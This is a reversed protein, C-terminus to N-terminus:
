KPELPPSAPFWHLKDAEQAYPLNPCRRVMAKYFRDAAQPDRGKIYAGGQYLAYLTLPDNDPLAQAAQWMLDAAVYRYHFRKNPVPASRWVRRMEDDTASLVKATAPNMTKFWNRRIVESGYTLPPTENPKYTRYYTPGARSLLGHIYTWDPEIETGMLAMGTDYASKSAAMMHKAWMSDPKALKRATPLEYTFNDWHVAHLEAAAKLETSVGVLITRQDDPAYEAAQAWKGNRALRRSLLSRLAALRNEGEESYRECRKQFEPDDKHGDVFTRLEALTLVREAVYAADTWYEARLFLELAKVYEGRGLSLVGLGAKVDAGVDVFTFEDLQWTEDAPFADLISHITQAAEDVRGQRLLIKSHVWTAYPASADAQEVWRQATEIDGEKYSAWALRDAEPFPGKIGSQILATNWDKIRKICDYDSLLYAVILRRCLPDTTLNLDFQQATCAVRCATRLSNAWRHREHEPALRLLDTYHQIALANQGALMEAQAQWGLSDDALHLSDAFGDNALDRVMSYYSISSSPDTQLLAKAIMHAAWTSRYHRREAPLELLSKWERVATIKDGQHYAVAGKSYLAFEEPISQLVLADSFFDYMSNKAKSEWETQQSQNGDSASYYTNGSVQYTSIKADWQIRGTRKRFDRYRDVVNFSFSDTNRPVSVGKKQRAERLEAIDTDITKEWTSTRWTGAAELDKWEADSVSLDIEFIRSLEHRFNARPMSLVNDECGTTLYNNPMYFNGCAWAARELILLGLVAVFPLRRFLM